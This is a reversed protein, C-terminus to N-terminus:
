ARRRDVRRVETQPTEGILALVAPRADASVRLDFQPSGFRDFTTAIWVDDDASVRVAQVANSSIFFRAPVDDMNDSYCEIFAM